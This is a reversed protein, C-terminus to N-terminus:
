AQNRSSTVIENKCFEKYFKLIQKLSDCGDFMGDMDTVSSTDFDLVQNFSFCGRFMSSMKVVNCTNWKLKKDFFFCFHFM